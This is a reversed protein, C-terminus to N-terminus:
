NVASFGKLRMEELIEAAKPDNGATLLIESFKKFGIWADDFLVVRATPVPNSRKIIKLSKTWPSDLNELTMAEMPTLIAQAKLSGEAIQKIKMIIQDTQEITTNEPIDSFLNQKVFRIDLPESSFITGELGQANSECVLAYRETAQGKPLPLTALVAKANGLKVRNQTWAAFSVIGIKPKMKSIYDLGGKVTNFYYGTFSSPAMGQNLYDFFADIVPQAEETSGAEGPYWFVIRIDGARAESVCFFISVAVLIIIIKIRKM